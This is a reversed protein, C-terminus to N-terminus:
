LTESHFQFTTVNSHLLKIYNDMMSIVFLRSNTDLLLILSNWYYYKMAVIEFGLTYLSTKNLTFKGGQEIYRFIVDNEFLYISRGNMDYARATNQTIKIPISYNKFSSAPLYHGKDDLQCATIQDEFFIYLRIDYDM